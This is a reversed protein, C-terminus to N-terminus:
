NINIYLFIGFKIPGAMDSPLSLHWGIDRPVLPSQRETANLDIYANREFPYVFSSSGLDYVDTLDFVWTPDM